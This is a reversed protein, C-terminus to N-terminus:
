MSLRGTIKLPVRAANGPPWLKEKKQGAGGVEGGGWPEKERVELCEAGECQVRAQWFGKSIGWWDKIKKGDM